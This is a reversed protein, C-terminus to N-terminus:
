SIGHIPYAIWAPLEQGQAVRRYWFPSVIVRVSEGNGYVAELMHPQCDMEHKAICVPPGFYKADRRYALYKSFETCIYALTVIVFGAVVFAAVRYVQDMQAKTTIGTIYTWLDYESM